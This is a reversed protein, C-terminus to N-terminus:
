LQLIHGWALDRSVKRLLLSSIPPALFDHSSNSDDSADSVDYHVMAHDDACAIDTLRAVEEASGQVLSRCGSWPADIMSGVTALREAVRQRLRACM